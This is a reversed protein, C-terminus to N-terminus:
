GKETIEIYHSPFKKIPSDIWPDLYRDGNEKMWEHRQWWSRGDTELWIRYAKVSTSNNTWGRMGKVYVWPTTKTQTKTRM